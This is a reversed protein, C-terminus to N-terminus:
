LYWRGHEAACTACVDQGSEGCVICATLDEEDVDVEGSEIKRAM